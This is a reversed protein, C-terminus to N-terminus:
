FQMISPPKFFSSIQSAEGYLFVLIVGTVATVVLLDFIELGTMMAQWPKELLFLQFAIVLAPPLFAVPMSVLHRPLFFRREKKPRVGLYLLYLLTKCFLSAFTLFVLLFLSISGVSLDLLDEPLSSYISFAVVFALAVSLVLLTPRLVSFGGVADYFDALELIAYRFDCGRINKMRTNPYFGHAYGKGESRALLTAISLSLGMYADIFRM